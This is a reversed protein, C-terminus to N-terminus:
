RIHFFRQPTAPQDNFSLGFARMVTACDADNSASMCGPASDPANVDVNSDQLLSAIDAVIVNKNVEFHEFRVAVRNPNRCESPPSTLSPSACATSGLHVSFGAARPTKPSSVASTPLTAAAQPLGSSAMDIKVFKYGAQWVWFMSTLNLPSPAITPDGHNLGFPVGLTFRVGRYHGVPITGTVATHLGTNGNRCAGEGNEFDLLAINQYQWIGDQALTLPVEKGEDNLLAIESVFFRMDSPTIRSHTVGIDDYSQGCAFTQTGVVADFKLAVQQLHTHHKKAKPSTDHDHAASLQGVMLLPLAVLRMVKKVQM